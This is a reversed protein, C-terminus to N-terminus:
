RRGGQDQGFGRPRNPPGPLRGLQWWKLDGVDLAKWYLSVQRVDGRIFAARDVRVSPHLVALQDLVQARGSADLRQVLQVLTLADKKRSEALLKVLAGADRPNTDVLGLAARFPESADEFYPTGSGQGPRLVCAAGAPVYVELDTSPSFFSVWGFAVKLWGAGTADVHLSYACGLDVALAERTEVFFRRPPAWIFARLGGHDLAVRHEGRDTQVLRLRSGPEVDLEGIRGVLVKARAEPGTELVQRPKWRATATFPAAELTPTGALAYVEWAAERRLLRPALFLACAIAAAGAAWVVRSRRVM